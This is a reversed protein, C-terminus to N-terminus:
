LELIYGDTLFMEVALPLSHVALLAPLCPKMTYFLLCKVIQSLPQFESLFFIPLLAVQRGRINIQAHWRHTQKLLSVGRFHSTQSNSKRAKSRLMAVLTVLDMDALFIDREAM